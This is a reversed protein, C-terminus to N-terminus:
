LRTAFRPPRFHDLDRVLIVDDLELARESSILGTHSRSQHLRRPPPPPATFVVPPVFVDTRSTQPRQEPLATTEPVPAKTAPLPRLASAHRRRKTEVYERHLAVRRSRAVHSRPMKRLTRRNEKLGVRRETTADADRTPPFRETISAYDASLFGKQKTARDFESVPVGYRGPGPAPDLDLRDAGYLSLAAETGHMPKCNRYRRSWDSVRTLSVARITEVADYDGPGPYSIRRPDTLCLDRRARPISYVPAREM